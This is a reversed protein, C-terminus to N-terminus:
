ASWMGRRNAVGPNRGVNLREDRALGDEIRRVGDWAIRACVVPDAVNTSNGVGRQAFTYSTPAVAAASGACSQIEPPTDGALDGISTTRRYDAGALTITQEARDEVVSGHTSTCLTSHRKRLWGEANDWRM